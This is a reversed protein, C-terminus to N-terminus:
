AHQGEAKLADRAAVRDWLTRILHSHFCYGSVLITAMGVVMSWASGTPGFRPVLIISALITSLLGLAYTAVYFHTAGAYVLIATYSNHLAAFLYGIAFIYVLHHATPMPRGGILELVRSGFSAILVAGVIAVLGLCLRFRRELQRVSAVNGTAFERVYVPALSYILAVLPLAGTQMLRSVASYEGIVAVPAVKWITLVIVDTYYQGMQFFQAAIIALAERLLEKMPVNMPERAAQLMPWLAIYASAASAGLAVCYTLPVMWARLTIRTLLFLGALFERSQIYGRGTFDSRLSIRSYLISFSSCLIPSCCSRCVGTM